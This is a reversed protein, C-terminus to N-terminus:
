AKKKAIFDQVSGGACFEMYLFAKHNPEDLVFDVYGVINDHKLKGLIDMERQAAEKSNEKSGIDSPKQDFYSITKCAM